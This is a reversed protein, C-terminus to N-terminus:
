HIVRIIDVGEFPTTGVRGTVHVPVHNGAPRVAIVESRRFKVTLESHDHGRSDHDCGHDHHRNHVNYPRTEAPVTGELRISSIDIDSARYGHPLEIEVKVWTGNITRHLIEPEFKIEARISAQSVHVTFSETGIWPGYRDGDFARARWQYVTNDALPVSVAASTIGSPDQPVATRSWALTTGSYVEFDYTLNDSDPDVANVVALNPTLTAISSGAAPADLTPAGPADNATNVMFWAAPTWGSTLQGDFARARWSYTQNEVLTTTVTWPTMFPTEVVGAASSVRDTLGADSYVEFEYTLADRDLDTANRVTLTPTFVSVGAGNSPNAIVPTPPADNATNVFFAVAPETWGSGASGDGAMARVYYPTNDLLGIAQWTTTGPGAPIMGSRIISASDFTPVIDVEFYYSIIASDIDTSNQLVIDANLGPIVANNAPSLVVPLTPPDNAKNVFFKARDM